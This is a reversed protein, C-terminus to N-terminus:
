YLRAGVALKEYYADALAKEKARMHGIIEAVSIKRRKTGKLRGTIAKRAETCNWNHNANAMAARLEAPLADFDKM